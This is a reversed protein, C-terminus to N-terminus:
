TSEPILARQQEQTLRALLGNLKQQVGPSPSRRLKNVFDKQENSALINFAELNIDHDLVETAPDFDQYRNAEMLYLGAASFSIPEKPLDKILKESSRFNVVTGLLAMGLYETLARVGPVDEVASLSTEIHTFLTSRQEFNLELDKAVRQVASCYAEVAALMSTIDAETRPLLRAM